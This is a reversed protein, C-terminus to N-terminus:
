HAFLFGQGPLDRTSSANDTRFPARSLETEMRHAAPEALTYTRAPLPHAAHASPRSQKWGCDSVHTKTRQPCLGFPLISAPQVTSWPSRCRAQEASEWGALFMRRGAAASIGHAPLPLWDPQCSSRSSTEDLADSFLPVIGADVPTPFTLTVAILPLSDAPWVEERIGGPYHRELHDPYVVTRSAATRAFPKGKVLLLYDDLLEQGRVNFGQWSTTNPGGTEGYYFADVTNTFVFPRSPGTRRHRPFVADAGSLHRLGPQRVSRSSRCRVASRIAAMRMSGEFLIPLLIYAASLGSVVLALFMGVAWFFMRLDGDKKHAVSLAKRFCWVATALALISIFVVTLLLILDLRAM